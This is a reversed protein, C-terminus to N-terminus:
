KDPNAEARRRRPPKESLPPKVAAKEEIEALLKQIHPAYGDRATVDIGWRKLSALAEGADKKTMYDMLVTLIYYHELTDAVARWSHIKECSVCVEYETGCVECTKRMKSSITSSTACSSM